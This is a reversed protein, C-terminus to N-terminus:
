RIGVKAAEYRLVETLENFMIDPHPPELDQLDYQRNAWYIVHDRYQTLTSYTSYTDFKSCSQINMAVWILFRKALLLFKKHDASFIIKDLDEDTLTDIVKFALSFPQMMLLAKRACSFLLTRVHNQEQTGPAHHRFGKAAEIDQDISEM